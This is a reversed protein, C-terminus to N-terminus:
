SVEIKPDIYFTSSATAAKVIVMMPGKENVTVTKTMKFKTAISGGWTSSDSSVSTGAALIDAKGSTGISALPFGSTGLYTADFWIDDNLPVAGGAWAGYITITRSGTTENWITRPLCDFPVIWEANANTVIKWSIPTTGDSAGGSRVITTETTLTGAYTYKEQRYNTDASDSRVVFVEHALNTPTTTIAAGGLKCDLLINQLTSGAAFITKGAVCLSLNMGIFRMISTPSQVLTTPIVAGAISGGLFTSSNIGGGTQFGQSVSGFTFTCNRFTFEYGSTAGGLNFRSSASTNNLTFKCSELVFFQSASNGVTINALNAAGGSRFDIGYWYHSGSTPGGLTIAFAGTTSVTATTRLDASVPPVSGARNVCLIRTPAVLTGLGNLILAATTSNEAHDHAVYYTDGAAHGSFATTLTTYANAWTAGTGSGTAGSWVYYTPM